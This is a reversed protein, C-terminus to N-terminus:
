GDVATWSNGGSSERVCTLKIPNVTTDQTIIYYAGNYLVRVKNGPANTHNYHCGTCLPLGNKKILDDLGGNGDGEFTLRDQSPPTAKLGWSNLTTTTNWNVKWTKGVWDNIYTPM